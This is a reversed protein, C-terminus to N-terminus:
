GNLHVSEILEDTLYASLERKVLAHLHEYLHSIPGEAGLHGSVKVSPTLFAQLFVDVIAEYGDASPPELHNGAVQIRVLTEGEYPPCGPQFRGSHEHWRPDNYAYLAPAVHESNPRLFASPRCEDPEGEWPFANVYQLVFGSAEFGSAAQQEVIWEFWGRIMPWATTWGPYQLCNVVISRPEIAVRWTRTGDRAFGEYQIGNLAFGALPALPAQPVSGLVLNQVDSRKPAVDRWPVLLSSGVSSVLAPEIPSKSLIAFAAERIAHGDHLPKFM